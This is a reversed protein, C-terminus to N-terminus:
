LSITIPVYLPLSLCVDLGYNWMWFDELMDCCYSNIIIINKKKKISNFTGSLETIGTIVYINGMNLKIVIVNLKKFHLRVIHIGCM